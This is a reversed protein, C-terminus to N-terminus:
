NEGWHLDWLEAGSEGGEGGRSRRGVEGDGHGVGWACALTELVELAATDPAAAARMDRNASSMPM